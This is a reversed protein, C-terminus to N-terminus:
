EIAFRIPITVMAGDIPRGDQTQPKMQFYPALKLAARGFGNGAPTESVVACGGVSGNAGVVCRLSVSGSLGAEAAAPPYYKSFEKPGPVRVWTPKIITPPGPPDLARPLGPDLPGVPPTPPEGVVPDAPPNPNTSVINRDSTQNPNETRHPNMTSPPPSTLRKAITPKPPKLFPDVLIPDIRDIQPPAQTFKQYALYAVLAVHVSVSIGIAFLMLRSLGRRRVYDESGIPVAFGRQTIVM